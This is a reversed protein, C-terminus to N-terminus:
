QVARDRIAVSADRTPRGIWPVQLHVLRLRDHDTADQVVENGTKGYSANIPAKVFVPNRARGAIRRPGDGAPTLHQPFRGMSSAGDVVTVM